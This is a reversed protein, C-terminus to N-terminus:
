EADDEAAETEEAGIAVSLRVVATVLMEDTVVCAIEAHDVRIAEGPRLLAGGCAIALKQAFEQPSIEEDLLFTLTVAPKKDADISKM